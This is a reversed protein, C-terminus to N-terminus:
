EQNDRNIRNLLIRLALTKHNISHLPHLPYHALAAVACAKATNLDGRFYHAHALHFKFADSPGECSQPLQRNLFIETAAFVSSYTEKIEPRIYHRLLLEDNKGAYRRILWTLLVDYERQDARSSKVVRLMLSDAEKIKGQELKLLALTRQYARREKESPCWEPEPELRQSEERCIKNYRPQHVYKQENLLDIAYTIDALAGDLDGLAYRIHSRKFYLPDYRPSRKIEQNLTKIFNAPAYYAAETVGTPHIRTEREKFTWIGISFYLRRSFRDIFASVMKFHGTGQTGIVELSLSCNCGDGFACSCPNNGIPIVQKIQGVDRQVIESKKVWKVGRLYTNGLKQIGWQHRVEADGSPAQGGEYRDGTCGSFIAFIIFLLVKLTIHYRFKINM